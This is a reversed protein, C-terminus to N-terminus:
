LLMSNLDDSRIYGAVVWSATAREWALRWRALKVPDFGAPDRPAIEPNRMASAVEGWPKHSIVRPMPSFKSRRILDPLLATPANQRAALWKRNLGQVYAALVLEPAANQCQGLGDPFIASM